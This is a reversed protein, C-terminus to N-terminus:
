AKFRPCRVELSSRGVRLRIRPHVAHTISSQRGARERDLAVDLTRGKGQVPADGKIPLYRRLAEAPSAPPHGSERTFLSVAVAEQFRGLSWRDNKDREELDRLRWKLAPRILTSDTWRALEQPSLARATAPAAPNHEYIRLRPVAFAPRESVPRDCWALDNAALLRLVRRSREPEGRLYVELGPLREFHGPPVIGSRRQDQLVSSLSLRMFSEDATQYEHRYFLSIPPTLAELATLDDLAQRLLAPTM